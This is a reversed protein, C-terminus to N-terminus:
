NNFRVIETKDAVYMEMDEINFENQILNCNTDDCEIINSKYKTDRIKEILPYIVDVYKTTIDEIIKHNHKDENYKSLMLKIDELESDMKEKYENLLKERDERMNLEYNHCEYMLKESNSLLLSNKKFLEITNEEDTYGFLLDLKLCIIKSKYENLKKYLSNELDKLQIIKGRHIEIDLKCHKKANCRAILIGDTNSFITGGEKKCRVCIIPSLLQERKSKRRHNYIIKEYKAKLKYYENIYDNLTKEKPTEVQKEEVDEEGELIPEKEEADNEEAHDEEAHNEEDTETLEDDEEINSSLVKEAQAEALAQSEALAQAKVEEEQRNKDAANANINTDIINSDIINSDMKNANM